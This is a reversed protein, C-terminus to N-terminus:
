KFCGAGYRLQAYLTAQEFSFGRADLQARYKIARRRVASYYTPLDSATSLNM